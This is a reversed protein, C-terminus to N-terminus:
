RMAGRRKCVRGIDFVDVYTAFGRYPVLGNEMAGHQQTKGPNQAQQIMIMALKTSTKYLDRKAWATKM